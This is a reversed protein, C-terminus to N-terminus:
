YSFIVVNSSEYVLNMIIIIKGVFISELCVYEMRFKIMGMDVARGALIREPVRRCGASLQQACATRPYGSPPFFRNM